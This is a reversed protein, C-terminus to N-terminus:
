ITEQSIDSKIENVTGLIGLMEDQNVKAMDGAQMISQIIVSISAHIESLSKQTRDALKRVEDAVVAFGRGHEGARAAEIAANLALLNTQDAIDGIVNLVDKIAETDTSLQDFQHSFEDQKQVSTDLASTLSLINEKLSESQSTTKSQEALESKYHSLEEELMSLKSSLEYQMQKAQGLEHTLQKKEERISQELANKQNEVKLVSEQAAIADDKYQGVEIIIADAIDQEGSIDPALPSLRTELYTYLRWIFLLILLTFIAIFLAFILHEQGSQTKKSFRNKEEILELGLKSMNKYETQLQSINQAEKAPLEEIISRIHENMKDQLTHLQADAKTDFSLASSIKEHSALILYILPLRDEAKLRRSIEDSLTNLKAYAAEFTQIDLDTSDTKCSGQQLLLIYTISSISLM